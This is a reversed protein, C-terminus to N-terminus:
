IKEEPKKAALGFDERLIRQRVDEASREKKEVPVPNMVMYFFKGSAIDNQADLKGKTFLRSGRGRDEM